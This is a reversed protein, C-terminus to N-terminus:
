AHRCEAVAERWAAVLRQSAVGGDTDVAEADGIRGAFGPAPPNSLSRGASRLARSWRCAPVPPVCEVLDGDPAELGLLLSAAAIPPDNRTIAEISQTWAATAQPELKWWDPKVGIAYLRELVRAVTDEGLAGHKGAIIEILL